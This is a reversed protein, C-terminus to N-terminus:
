ITGPRQTATDFTVVPVGKARPLPDAGRILDAAKEAMMIVPANLNGSVISPMISADVVRLGSTNHVRMTEPDVVCDESTGMKATCSPHYASDAKERIFADLAEDTQCAEGPALEDGRYPAFADQHFIERTLKICDRMEERDNETSLYNPQILPHEFPDNSKLKLWGVSTPRMPGVHAQYAEFPAPKRGHDNIVSPLFHHQINPHPIGPKSRIFAGSELHSTSCVGSHSLFWQIGQLAMNHPKLASYLTLAQTCKFQVYIELHDQLNQGVGPLSVKPNIGIEKLHEPDGIGSLMLLQPSNLSGGSLITEKGRVLTEEGKRKAHVANVGIVRKKDWELRTCLADTIVTLNERKTIPHLYARSASCRRGDKITMDMRGFGEQQAGNLDETRPYGCQVGAETFADYLENESTGTTVGLPGDSGHYDNEGRSSNEAKKFYPLCEEYSWGNAGEKVWRDYDLAHGRIYVMANLASSGGLVRGRPWYMVRGDMSSQAETHYYWNYQDNSLNYMLAAPMDIKWTNDKPGAELLCVSKSSDESLRNALVCGASGAGVIVYDFEKGALSTIFRRGRTTNRRILWSQHALRNYSNRFM